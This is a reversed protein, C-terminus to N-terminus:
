GLEYSLMDLTKHEFNDIQKKLTNDKNRYDRLVGLEPIIIYIM